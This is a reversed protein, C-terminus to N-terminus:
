RKQRLRQAIDRDIDRKKLQDRKEYIKKGRALTIELKVRHHHGYIATPIIALNSSHMQQTIKLLENQHLLLKRTRRPEYNQNNAYPYPNIYANHLWAEGDKLRVFSDDLKVWGQRLSKVEAGTLVLGAEFRDLLEYEFSAKRNFIKKMSNQNYSM